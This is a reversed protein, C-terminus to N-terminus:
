PIKFSIRNSIQKGLGVNNNIGGVCKSGEQIVVEWETGSTWSGYSISSKNDFAGRFHQSITLMGYSDVERKYITIAMWDNHNSCECGPTLVNNAYGCSGRSIPTHSSTVTNTVPNYTIQHQKVGLPHIITPLGTPRNGPTHTTNVTHGHDTINSSSSSSSYSSGTNLNKQPELLFLTDYSRHGARRSVVRSNSVTTNTRAALGWRNLPGLAATFVMNMHNPM